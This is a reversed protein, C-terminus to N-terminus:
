TRRSRRARGSRPGRRISERAGARDEHPLRARLARLESIATWLDTPMEGAPGDACAPAVLLPDDAAGGAPEGRRLAQAGQDGREEIIAIWQDDAGHAGRGHVRRRGLLQVLRGWGLYRNIAQVALGDDTLGGDDAAQHDPRPLRAADGRRRAQRGARGAPVAGRAAPHPPGRRRDDGAAAARQARGGHGPSASERSTCSRSRRRRRTRTSRISSSSTARGSTSSVPRRRRRVPPHGTIEVTVFDVFRLGSPELQVGAALGGSFPLGDVSAIPTM